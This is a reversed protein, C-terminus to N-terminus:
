GDHNRVTAADWYTNWDSNMPMGANFEADNAITRDARVGAPNTTFWVATEHDNYSDLVIGFVDDGSYRDRYLTKVNAGGPSTDYLKGAVYLYDDDYAVRIETLETPESGYTPQYVTLPLAPVAEWASDDVNGDFVIPEPLRTLPMPQDTQASLSSAFILVAISFLPYVVCWGRGKAKTM